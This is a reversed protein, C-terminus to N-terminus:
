ELPASQAGIPFGFLWGLLYLVLAFVFPRRDIQRM